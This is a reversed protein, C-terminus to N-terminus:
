RGEAPLAIMRVHAADPLSYSGSSSIGFYRDFVEDDPMANPDFWPESAAEAKAKDKGKGKGKAKGKGATQAGLTQQAQSVASIITKMLASGDSVSVATRNGPLADMAARAAPEDWLAPGSPDDIRNLVKHLADPAGASILFYDKTVTYAFEGGGGAQDMGPLSAKLKWIKHGAFESEEFMGQGNGALGKLTELSANFRASDKLQIGTVDSTMGPDKTVVSLQIVQDDMVAFVDDRLKVGLEQEMAGLQMQVMGGIMPGLKNLAALLDDYLRLFSWRSVSAAAADVPVFDPLKIRTDVGRLMRVILGQPDEQHLLAFDVQSADDRLDVSLGLGRIENLSLAGLIVEAGFPNPAEGAAQSAATMMATLKELLVATDIYVVLDGEGEAIEQLRQYHSVLASEAAAGGGGLGVIAQTMIQRNNSELLVGEMMTWGIDWPTGEEENEALYRVRAGEIETTFAKLAENKKLKFEFEQEKAAVLEAEKDAVESFAVLDPSTRGAAVDPWLFAAMSAGPYHRLDERLTKGNMEKYSKIWPAEGNEFSPALWKEVAPDVLFGGISSKDWDAVLEPVNKISIVAVANAPVLPLWEERAPCLAPLALLLLCHLVRVRPSVSRIFAASNM